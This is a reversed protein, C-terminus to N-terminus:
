ENNILEKIKNYILESSNIKPLKNLNDKYKKYNDVKLMNDIKKDLVDVNLDKEEIMDALNNNKLDLANYYQHNNAVYPSPIFITPLCLAKIEAITSAGARSILIDANKLLGPLNELYPLVKVNNPYKTDMFSDYLTKGTIYVVQYPKSDMNKLFEKMKNNITSSGLSGAVVVILRKNDSLGLSSPKIEKSNLARESVPNGSYFVKKSDFYKM